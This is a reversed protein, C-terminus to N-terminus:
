LTNPSEGEDFQSVVRDFRIDANADPSDDDV